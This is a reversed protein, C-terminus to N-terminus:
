TPEYLNVQSLNEGNYRTLMSNQEVDTPLYFNKPLRCYLLHNNCISKKSRSRVKYNIM